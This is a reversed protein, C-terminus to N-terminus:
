IDEDPWEPLALVANARLPIFESPEEVVVGNWTFPAGWYPCVPQGHKDLRGLGYIGGTEYNAAFYANVAELYTDREEDLGVPWICYINPM